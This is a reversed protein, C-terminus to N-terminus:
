LGLSNLLAIAASSATGDGVWGDILESNTAIASRVRQALEPRWLEKPIKQIERFTRRADEYSGANCFRDVRAEAYGQRSLPHTEIIEVIRDALQQPELGAGQIAQWKGIFGYPDVEVRVPLILKQCGIAVGVEQDTWDSQKFDSTLYALLADCSRLAYEIVIVWQDTPNIDEHAVFAAVGRSTLALKLAAMDTKHLHTHSLFLRFFREGAYFQTKWIDPYADGLGGDGPLDNFLFGHLTELQEDSGGEAMAQVYANATDNWSDQWPFGFQRLVLDIDSWENAGLAAVIDRITRVREGPDM